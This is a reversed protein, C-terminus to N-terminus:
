RDAEEGLRYLLSCAFMLAQEANRRSYQHASVAHATAHRSFRAPVKDGNTAFFQQYTQWMPAFAIYERVTFEDNAVTTTTKKNPVLM